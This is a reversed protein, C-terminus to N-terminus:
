GAQSSSGVAPVHNPDLRVPILIKQDADKKSLPQFRWKKVTAVADADLQRYGSSKEITASAVQGDPHVTALVMATGGVLAGSSDRPWSDAMSPKANSCAMTGVSCLLALSAVRVVRIKM